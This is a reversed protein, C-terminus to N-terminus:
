ILERIECDWTGFINCDNKHRIENILVHHMSNDNTNMMNQYISDSIATQERQLRRNKRYRVVPLNMLKMKETGKALLNHSAADHIPVKKIKIKSEGIGNDVEIDVEETDDSTELDEAGEDIDETSDLVGNLANLVNDDLVSYDVTYDSNTKNSRHIISSTFESIMEDQGKDTGDKDEKCLKTTIHSLTDWYVSNDFKRKPKDSFTKALSLMECCLVKEKTRNAPTSKVKINGKQSMDTYNDKGRNKADQVELVRHNSYENVVFSRSSLSLMLNQSHLQWGAITNPFDLEKINKNMLEM